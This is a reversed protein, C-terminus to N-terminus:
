EILISNKFQVHCNEENLENLWKKPFVFIKDESKNFKSNIYGGWWSFSSNAMIGGLECSAMIILSDIENKNVFIINVNVFEQLFINAMKKAKNLENSLVYIHKVKSVDFMKIAKKYYEFDNNLLGVNHSSTENKIYDGLRVHIFISDKLIDEKKFDLIDYFDYIIDEVYKENQFYRTYLTNEDYIPLNEFIFSNRENYKKVPNINLLTFKNFLVDNYNIKSHPSPCTFHPNIIIKKGNKNAFNYIALLQFIRNCLGYGIFPFVYNDNSMINTMTQIDLDDNYKEFIENIENERNIIFKRGLINLNICESSFILLSYCKCKIFIDNDSETLVENKIYKHFIENIQPYSYKDDINTLNIVIQLKM